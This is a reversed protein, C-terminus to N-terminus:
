LRSQLWFNFVTQSRDVSAVELVDPSFRVTGQAANVSVGESDVRLDVTITDGVSFSQGGASLGFTAADASLPCFVAILGFLVITLIKKMM